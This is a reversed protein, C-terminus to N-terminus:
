RLHQNGHFVKLIFDKAPVNLQEYALLFEKNDYPVELFSVDMQGSDGVQLTAYPALPSHNCGLSGPNLYLRKKSKFHHVIHHHGFCVVDVNLNGYLTDLELATPRENIPLFKEEENLHYHLFLFNKGNITEYRAWPISALAPLFKKEIRSAIWDHHEIKNQIGTSEQGALINLIDEDHNGKVFSIDKRSFLMELVENTEHGIAILDGLCYIHKIDNDQDIHNLVAKLASGNGHIDTIIAIKDGMTKVDLNSILLLSQQLKEVRIISWRKRVIFTDMRKTIHFPRMVQGSSSLSM